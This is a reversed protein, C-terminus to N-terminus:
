LYRMLSMTALAILIFLFNLRTFIEMRSALRKLEAGETQNPQRGMIEGSIRGIRIGTPTLIGMGIVAALLTAVTGALLAKGAANASMVTFGGYLQYTLVFGSIIVIWGSSIMAPVVTKMITGMVPGQFQPGMKRLKPEMILVMFFTAGAWFSGFVIHLLRMSWILIDSQMAVGKAFHAPTYQQIGGLKRNQWRLEQALNKIQPLNVM